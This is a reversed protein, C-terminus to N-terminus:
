GHIRGLDRPEHRDQARMYEELIIAAAVADTYPPRAGDSAMLQLRAAVSTFQEDWFIVDRAQTLLVRQAQVFRLAWERIYRAHTTETGTGELPLGCIVATVDHQEILRCLHAFDERRSTRQHVELPTAALWLSDNLAIGIRIRGVDLAMLRPRIPVDM